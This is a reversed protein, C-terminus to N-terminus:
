AIRSDGVQHLLSFVESKLRSQSFRGSHIRLKVCGLLLTALVTQIWALVNADGSAKLPESVVNTNLLIM